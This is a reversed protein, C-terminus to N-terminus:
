KISIEEGAAHTKLWGRVRRSIMNQKSSSVTDLAPLRLQTYEALQKRVVANRRATIEHMLEPTNATYLDLIPINLKALEDNLSYAPYQSAKANILVLSYGRSNTSTEMRSILTKVAWNASLGQAIIVLNYQGLTNLQLLGGEVRKFMSESFAQDPTMPNDQIADVSENNNPIPFAEFNDAIKDLTDDTGGAGMNDADFPNSEEPTEEPTEEPIDENSGALSNPANADQQNVGAAPNDADSAATKDTTPESSTAVVIPPLPLSIYNEFFLSLTHWGYDPLYERLPAVIYPWHAHQAIDHLILIGGQPRGTNEPLYLGSISSEADSSKITETERDLLKLFQITEKLRRQSPNPTVRQLVEAPTPNDIATSDDTSEAGTDVPAAAPDVPSTEPDAPFTAEEPAAQMPDDLGLAPWSLLLVLLTNILLM